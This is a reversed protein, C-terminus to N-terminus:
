LFSWFSSITYYFGYKVSIIEYKLNALLWEYNARSKVFDPKKM